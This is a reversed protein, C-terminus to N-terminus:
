PRKGLECACSVGQPVGQATNHAVVRARNWPLRALAEGMLCLGTVGAFILGCGVFAPVILWWPSVLVALLVGLAVLAGATLRVQRELAWRAVTNRVVPSGENIWADTGGDLVILNRGSSALLERAIRARTGGQCVLVVPGDANLDATRLEIQELPINIAGPLHATAFETASRVDVLQAQRGTTQWDQWINITITNAAVEPM